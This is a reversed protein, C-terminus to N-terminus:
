YFDARNDRIKSAKKLPDIIPNAGYQFQQMMNNKAQTEMQKRQEEVNATEVPTTFTNEVQLVYVGMNGIVPQSVKGKNAPNFIAGLVKSEISLAGAAQGGSIRVSDAFQIPQNIKSSLAQLSSVQGINKVIMEGKKKNRLTPEIVSRVASPEPLGPKNVQTVVAVVYNDPVLEPGIVDGKDSDFVKKVFSRVSTLGPVDFQMPDIDNAVQKLYGKAKLNKDYYDNFAKADRSDGAFLSAANRAQNDTEEGPVITKALYAVKYYPQVNKLDLIWILHYGFESKVLKRQGSKGNFVSDNFAPVMQGQSFYDSMAGNQQSQMQLLGGNVASSKDDSLQKALSDFIAGNDIATKISDIRKKAISDPLLTQNTQPNFTQVLIHKVKASDPMSKVDIVKALVYNNVDVYPGYVGGVATTFISDKAPVQITSKGHYKNDYQIASNQQSLFVAPDTAAAFQSKLKELDTKVVASDAASPAISFLVYEVSRTEKEREYQDKHEKMYARIEDDSIKITSDPISAFPIAVYTLKAALSNDANRKEIMWKPFYITNMMLTMYKTVLRQSKTQEINSAIFDYDPQGPAGNKLIQNVQQQASVADFKGNQDTFYKSLFQPPNAGYLVERMEKETVTLGLKQAQEQILLNTVEQDWVGNIIQSRSGEGYQVLFEEVKKDFSKRDISTGNVKGITNGPGGGMAGKGSFADMLIFGLLALGIAIVAWRAYKDRIKQIVSM